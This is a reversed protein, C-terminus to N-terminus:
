RNPSDRRVRDPDGARSWDRLGSVVSPLFSGRVETAKRDVVRLLLMFLAFAGGLVVAALIAGGPIFPFAM